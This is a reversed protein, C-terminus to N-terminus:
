SSEAKKREEVAKAALDPFLDSGEFGFIRYFDREAPYQKVGEPKKMLAYKDMDVAHEDRWRMLADFDRCQRNVSFDPFPQRQTDMWYYTHIDADAHCMINQALMDVCHRLHVWQLRGHLKKTPSEGEGYDAFAYERLANLCHMQHVVDLAGIYADDGFGWYDDEFRAVYEPDKGLRLVDNKTIPIAWIPDFQSWNEDAEPGPEQRSWSPNDGPWITGNFMVPKHEIKLSDLVPAAQILFPRSNAPFSFECYWSTAKVAANMTFSPFLHHFGNLFITSGLIVLNLLTLCLIKEVSCSRAPRKEFVPASEDDKELLSESDSREILKYSSNFYPFFRDTLTM